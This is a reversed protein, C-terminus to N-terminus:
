VALKIRDGGFTIYDGINDILLNSEAPLETITVLRLEGLDTMVFCGLYAGAIYGLVERLTYSTPPPIQYSENMVTWTRADVQVDMIRAIESVMDTDTVTGGSWDLVGTDEWYRETKLMADFCHLTLVNIGDSNHTVERTDIYFTGQQIWESQQTATCARVYPVVEAMLPIDGAPNLMKVTLEASVAKGVTPENDFMHHTSTVSFLQDEFFGSEPGDRAVIIAVGAFLIREGMETILDGADGIVVTTEFWHSEDALITRYLLSTTQM